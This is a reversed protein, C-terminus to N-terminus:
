ACHTGLINQYLEEHQLGVVSWDYRQAHRRCHSATAPNKALEMSRVMAQFLSEVAEEGNGDFLVGILPDSIIDPIGGVRAGVVPTGASLSEILVMGFTEQISPLVTIAANAYLSPIKEEKQVGLFDISPCLEPNASELYRQSLLPDIYGSLQLIAGPYTNKLREFAKILLPVRKRPDGLEAMCLIRPKELDKNAIPQFYSTDVGCPILHTQLGYEDQLTRQLYRSPVIVTTSSRIVREFMFRDLRSGLHFPDSGMYHVHESRSLHKGMSVGFGDIYYLSQIIDFREGMLSSLFPWTMMRYRCRPSILPHFFDKNYVIDMGEREVRHPRGPKTTIVTIDHGRSVFYRALGNIFRGARKVYPWYTPVTLAIKM